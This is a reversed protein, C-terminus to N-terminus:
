GAVDVRINVDTFTPTGIRDYMHITCGTPTLNIYQVFRQQGLGAACTLQIYSTALGTSPWTLQYRGVQIVGDIVVHVAEATQAGNQHSISAAGNNIRALVWPRISTITAQLNSGNLTIASATLTGTFSPNDKPAYTSAANASLLYHTLTDSVHAKTAVANGAIKIDSTANFSPATVDGTFIPNSSPALSAINNTLLSNTTTRNYYNTNVYDISAKNVEANIAITAISNIKSELLSM